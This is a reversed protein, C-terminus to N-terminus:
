WAGSIGGYDLFTSLKVFHPPDPPHDIEYRIPQEILSLVKLTWYSGMRLHAYM